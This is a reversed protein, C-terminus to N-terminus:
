FLEHVEKKILLIAAAVQPPNGAESELLLSGLEKATADTRLGSASKIIEHIVSERAAKVLNWAENSVYLQQTINHDFEQRVSGILEKELQKASVDQLDFRLVANRPTIRELFLVIRECAQLKMSIVTKNTEQKLQLTMKKRENKLFHFIIFISAAAVIIGPLSIKLIELTNNM